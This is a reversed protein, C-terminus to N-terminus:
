LTDRGDTMVEEPAADAFEVANKETMPTFTLVYKGEPVERPVDIVLRHSEPIDVTQSFTM